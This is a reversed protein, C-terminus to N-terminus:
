NKLLSDRVVRLVDMTTVIGKLENDEVVVLRHVHSVVMKNTIEKLLASETVTFVLPTMIDKVTLDRNPGLEIARIEENTLPKEWGKTYYSADKTEANLYNRLTTLAIDRLSIVGTMEGKANVVPAGSINKEHFLKTVDLVPFGERVWVVNPNMIDKATIHKM